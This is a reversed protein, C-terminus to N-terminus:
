RKSNQRERGGDQKIREADLSHPHPVVASGERDSRKRGGSRGTLAVVLLSWIACRRSGFECGPKLVRWYYRKM